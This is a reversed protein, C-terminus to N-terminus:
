PITEPSAAGAYGSGVDTRQCSEAELEIWFRSGTPAVPEFGVTGGMADALERAIALGLGTGGTAKSRSPDVRHFRQFLQERHEEPIGPGHDEVWLRVRDGVRAAGVTVETGGGYRAANSLLNSLVRRLSSRDAQVCIGTPVAVSAEVPTGAAALEELCSTAVEEASVAEMELHIAGAEYRALDLLDSVLSGLRRAQRGAGDLLKRQMEADTVIEAAELSAVVAAVPTRLEHSADAVFDRWSREMRRLPTLDLLVAVAGQSTPTVRLALVRRKPHSLELERLTAGGRLATVVTSRFRPVDSFAIMPTGDPLAKRGLLSCAAPNAFVVRGARDFAVVGESMGDLLGALWSEATRPPPSAATPERSTIWVLWSLAVAGTAVVLAASWPAPGLALLLTSGTTWGVVLAWRAKATM